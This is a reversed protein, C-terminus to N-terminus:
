EVIECQQIVLAYQTLKSRIHSSYGSHVTRAQDHSRNTVAAIVKDAAIKSRGFANGFVGHSASGMAHQRGVPGFSQALGGKRSKLSRTAAAFHNAAKDGVADLEFATADEIQFAFHADSCGGADCHHEPKPHRNGVFPCRREHFKIAGQSQWLMYIM